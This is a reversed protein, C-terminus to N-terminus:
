EREETEIVEEVVIEETELVETESKTEKAPKVVKPETQSKELRKRFKDVQGASSIFTQEGTYFPHTDSTVELRVLPYTKGDAEYVGTDRPNVSSEILFQKKTQSDEFIVLQTKPHIEPKM